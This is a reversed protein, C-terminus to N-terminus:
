LNIVNPKVKSTDKGCMRVESRLWMRNAAGWNAATHLICLWWAPWACIGSISGITLGCILDKIQLCYILGMLAHASIAFDTLLFTSLNRLDKVLM